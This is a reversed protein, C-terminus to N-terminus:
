HFGERGGKDERKLKIRIEVSGELIDVQSNYWM